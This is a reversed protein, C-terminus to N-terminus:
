EETGESAIGLYLTKTPSSLMKTLDATNLKLKARSAWIGQATGDDHEDHQALAMAHKAIDNDIFYSYEELVRAMSSLEGIDCYIGARLMTARHIYAFSRNIKNMRETLADKSRTKENKYAESEIYQIDSKRM